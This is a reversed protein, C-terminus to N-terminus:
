LAYATGAPVDILQTAPCHKTLTLRLEDLDQATEPLTGYHMPWLRRIKMMQVALTVQKADMTFVGGVPLCAITPHFLKGLLKMGYFLATDGAHYLRKGHELTFVFGASPGGAAIHVAEVLTAKVNSLRCTGGLNMGAGRHIVLDKDLTTEALLRTTLPSPAIIVAGSRAAIEVADGVHHPHDHTICIAHVDSVDDLGIPCQANGTIWPDILIRTGDFADIRFASHGLWTIDTGM